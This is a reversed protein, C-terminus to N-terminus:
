KFQSQHLNYYYGQKAMLEHHTGKEIIEGDNVVLILDANRITSLRHAIVFSTKNKMISEQLATQIIKETNSDVNSTAEDLVLIKKNGLIARTLSLLQREGQSLNSGNNEIVTDYGNEYKQIFNHASTLTAAEIIEKDTARKNSVRLNNWITDNFMFSDQLVVSMKERLNDKPIKNLEIGDIKISGAEYDYFKSLLNIITTKGAGTPGVIAITQGPKAYFTANKLQYKDSDKDYRFSVNNFEISGQTDEGLYEPNQIASPTVLDLLTFIRTTSAVGIQVSFIVNFLVQVTTTYNWLLNIYGIILAAIEGGILGYFPVGNAKFTISIVLIVLVLFNSFITFWPDFVKTYLDAIFAEKKITHAIKELKKNAEPERDFTQTVKTNKLMEEVFGNMDAFHNIVRIYPKRAGAIILWSIALFIFSMPVVIISLTFSYVFMFGIAFIINFINGFSENLLQVLSQSTNSIDNTLTSIQNGAQQKDHYSIPMNLLKVTSIERMKSAVKFSATIFLKGQLIRFIGYLMFCCAVAVNTIIFLTTKFREPHGIVDNNLFDKVIFGTMATGTTYFMAQFFSLIIGWILIGKEAGMFKFTASILTWTSVKREKRILKEPKKISKNKM